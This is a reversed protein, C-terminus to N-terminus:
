RPADIRAPPRADRPAGGDLLDRVTGLALALFAAACLRYTLRAWGAGARRFVRDVAAACFVMWAVSSAMFGAFFVAYDAATPDAAGIAGMASGIAAWYAVNQPNTVSLLVGSSLAGRGTARGADPLDFERSAARWADIALWVLYGVGAIAVPVRLADLRMLLGVGALGLV